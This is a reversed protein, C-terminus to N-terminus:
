VKRCMLRQLFAYFYRGRSGNANRPKRYGYLDAQDVLACVQSASLTYFDTGRPIGVLGLINTADYGTLRSM